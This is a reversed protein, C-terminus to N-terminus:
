VNELKESKETEQNNQKKTAPQDFIGYDKM